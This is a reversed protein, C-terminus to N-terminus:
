MHFKITNCRIKPLPISHHSEETSSFNLAYASLISTHTERRQNLNIRPQTWRGMRLSIATDPQTIKCGRYNFVWFWIWFKNITNSFCAWATWTREVTSCHYDFIFWRTEEIRFISCSEKKQRFDDIHAIIKIQDLAIAIWRSSWLNPQVKEGYQNVMTPQIQKKGTVFINCRSNYFRVSLTIRASYLTEEQTSTKDWYTSPVKRRNWDPISEKLPRHFIEFRNLIRLQYRWSPQIEM